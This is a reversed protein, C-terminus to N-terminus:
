TKKTPTAHKLGTRRFVRIKRKWRRKM